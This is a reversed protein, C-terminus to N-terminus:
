LYYFERRYKKISSSSSVFINHDDTVIYHPSYDCLIKRKFKGRKNFVQIRKNDTDAIYIEPKIGTYASAIDFPHYLKDNNIDHKKFTNLLKLNKDFVQVHNNYINLALTYLNNNILTTSESNVNNIVNVLYLKHPFFSKDFSMINTNNRDIIYIYKDNEVIDNFIQPYAADYDM